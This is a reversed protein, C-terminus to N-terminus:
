IFVKSKPPIKQFITEYNMNSQTRAQRKVFDVFVSFPPHCGYNQDEYSQGVKRWEHQIYEPLKRRVEELGSAFNMNQLDPCRRVNHLVVKCLDHFEYLKNGINSGNIVPFQRVKSLIDKTILQSSGFRQALNEMVENVDSESVEQVSSLHRSIMVQPEGICYSSILQLTKLPNLNLSGIYSKLQGIWSWYKTPSGDFPEISKKILEQELLHNSMLRMQQFESTLPSQTNHFAHDRMAPQREYQFFPRLNTSNYTYNPNHEHPFMTRQHSSNESNIYRPDPKSYRDHNVFPANYDTSHSNIFSHTNNHSTVPKSNHSFNQNRYISDTFTPKHCTYTTSTNTDSSNGVQIFSFSKQSNNQNYDSYSNSSRLLTNNSIGTQKESNDTRYLDSKSHAYAFKPISNYSNSDLGTQRSITDTKPNRQDFKHFIADLEPDNINVRKNSDGLANPNQVKSISKSNISISETENLEPIVPLEYYHTNDSCKANYSESVSVHEAQSDITFDYDEGAELNRPNQMDPGDENKQQETQCDQLYRSINRTQSLSTKMNDNTASTNFSLIISNSSSSGSKISSADDPLSLNEIGNEKYIVNISIITEDIDSKYQLRETRITNCDEIRASSNFRSSLQRSIAYFEKAKTKIVRAFESLEQHTKFDALRTQCLEDIEEKISDYHNEIDSIPAKVKRKVSPPFQQNSAM